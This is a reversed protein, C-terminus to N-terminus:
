AVSGMKRRKVPAIMYNGFLELAKQHVAEGDMEDWEGIFAQNLLALCMASEKDISPYRLASELTDVEVKWGYAFPPTWIRSSTSYDPRVNCVPWDCEDIGDEHLYENDAEDMNSVIFIKSPVQLDATNTASQALMTTGQKSSRSPAKGLSGNVVRQRGQEAVVKVTDTMESIRSGDDDCAEESRESNATTSPAVSYDNDTDVASSSDSSTSYNDSAVSSADDTGPHNGFVDSPGRFSLFTGGSGCPSSGDSFPSSGSSGLGPTGSGFSPDQPSGSGEGAGPSDGSSGPASGNEGFSLGVHLSAQQEPVRSLMDNYRERAWVVLRQELQKQNRAELEKIQEQNLMPQHAFNRPQDKWCEMFQIDHQFQMYSAFKLASGKAWEKALDLLSRAVSSFGEPSKSVEVADERKRKKDVTEAKCGSKEGKVGRGNTKHEYMIYADSAEYAQVTIEAGDKKRYIVFSRLTAGPETIKWAELEADVKDAHIWFVTKPVPRGLHATVAQHVLNKMREVIKNYKADLVFTDKFSQNISRKPFGKKQGEKDYKVNGLPKRVHRINNYSLLVDQDAFPTPPPYGRAVAAVPAPSLMEDGMLFTPPLEAPLQETQETFNSGWEMGIRAIDEDMSSHLIYFIDDPAGASAAAPKADDVDFSDRSDVNLEEGNFSVFGTGQSSCSTFETDHTLSSSSAITSSCDAATFSSYSVAATTREEFSAAAGAVMPDQFYDDKLEDDWTVTKHTKPLVPIDLGAIDNMAEDDCLVNDFALPYGTLDDLDDDSKDLRRLESPPDTM